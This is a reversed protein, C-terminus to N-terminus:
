LLVASTFSKFVQKMNKYDNPSVSHTNLGFLSSGSTNICLIMKLSNHPISNPRVDIRLTSERGQLFLGYTSVSTLSFDKKCIFLAPLSHSCEQLTSTPSSCLKSYALSSWSTRTQVKLFGELWTYDILRFTYLTNTCYILLLLLLARTQTVWTLYYFMALVWSSGWFEKQDGVWVGNQPLRRVGTTIIKKSKEKSKHSKCTDRFSKPENQRFWVANIRKHRSGKM